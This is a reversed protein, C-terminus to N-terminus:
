KLEPIRPKETEGPARVFTGDGEPDIEVGTFRAQADYLARRDPRGRSFSMDFGVERLVSGDYRGWKDILGDSNTDEEVRVLTQGRHYTHRDQVRDRKTSTAVHTEGSTSTAPTTWTDEIGDARSASGIMSLQGAADFYEWRDIRGDGDLDAEGRLTRTGDLYTWQDLQGDGNQDAGLQLLRRTYDDYSPVVTRAQPAPSCGALLALFCLTHVTRSHVGSSLAEGRRNCSWATVPDDIFRSLIVIYAM